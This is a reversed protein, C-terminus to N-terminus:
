SAIGRSSWTSVGRKEVLASHFAKCLSVLRFRMDTLEGTWKATLEENELIINVLRAGYAPSSSFEWRVLYRLQDYVNVAIREDESVIHLVGCREGYLGFNESFSQCAVLEFGQQGFHRLGYADDALSAGLGQYAMDLFPFHRRKKM